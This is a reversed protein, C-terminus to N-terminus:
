YSNAMKGLCCFKRYFHSIRHMLLWCDRSEIFYERHNSTRTGYFRRIDRSPLYRDSLDASYWLFWLHERFCLPLRAFCYFVAWYSDYYSFDMFISVPVHASFLSVVMFPFIAGIVFKFWPCFKLWLSGLLSAFMRSSTFPPSSAFM